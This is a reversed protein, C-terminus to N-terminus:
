ANSTIPQVLREATAATGSGPVHAIIITPKPRTPPARRRRRVPCNAEATQDDDSPYLKPTTVPNRPRGMAKSRLIRNFAPDHCGFKADDFAIEPPTPRMALPDIDDAAKGGGSVPEKMVRRLDVRQEATVPLLKM